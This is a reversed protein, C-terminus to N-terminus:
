LQKCFEVLLFQNESLARAFNNIHLVLVDKEEETETTKEKKPPEESDETEGTTEKPAEEPNKTQKDDDAQVCFTWLLLGLLSIFM